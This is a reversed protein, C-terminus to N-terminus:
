AQKSELIPMPKRDYESAGVAQDCERHRTLRLSELYCNVDHFTATGYMFRYKPSCDLLHFEAAGMDYGEHGVYPPPIEYRNYSGAKCGAWPRSCLTEDDWVVVRPQGVIIPRSKWGANYVPQQMMTFLNVCYKRKGLQYEVSRARADIAQNITKAVGKNMLVWDGEDDLFWVNM